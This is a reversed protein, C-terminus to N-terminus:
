RNTTSSFYLLALINFIELRGLLMNGTLIYKVADPLASFNGLSSVNEFGPGVNGMTAISASFATMLSIDFASILITSIFFILVYMIIFVQTHSILDERILQNDVKAVMVMRPHLVILIQRKLIKFFLFVRDFKLGGSTSGVMGCQITFYILVIIALPPWSATDTTAFGTTTGVSIVQFAAYRFADGLEYYDAVYLKLAVITTGVALVILFARAMSSKFINSPHFIITGFLLGFHIGSLTMFIMVIVEITLSDYHAISMNKTSFGGTAITAFSHNIADFLNMGAIWMAVTQALTLGIYVYGLIRLVQQKNQKFNTQSLSSFEANLLVVKSKSQPLVILVFLIIGIGGMWHTASRFFLLGNPLAEVNNLITSGTTTFGSVSEFWANALSFEGGWLLYPLTGIMCTFLWGFVVIAIGEAFNIEEVRNTFLVFMSGFVVAIMFTFLLPITSTEWLVVSILLSIFLFLAQFLFIFGLHRLISETKM